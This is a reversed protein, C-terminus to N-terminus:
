EPASPQSRQTAYGRLRRGLFDRLRARAARAGGPRDKIPPVSPDVPLRALFADLDATRWTSFPPDVPRLAAPPFRPARAARHPWAEAFLRHIRPRLHAAAAVSPGLLALPVLGNGDVAVVATDTKAALAATQDPAIFCPYDDTVVLCADAALRRLLGRGSNEPTEVFPWYNLGVDAARRANAQMGELIFRHLRRSAWPYALKLGEYVVLPRGLDRAWRRAHDLAHNHSLRRYMQVWYLVYAGEARVRGHNAPRVRQDNYRDAARPMFM